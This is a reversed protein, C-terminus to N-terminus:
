ARRTLQRPGDVDLEQMGVRLRRRARPGAVGSVVKAAEVAEHELRALPRDDGGPDRDGDVDAQAPEHQRTGAERDLVAHRAQVRRPQDVRRIATLHAHDQDVVARLGELGVRTVPDRLQQDDRGHVVVGHDDVLQRRAAVIAARAAEAGGAAALYLKRLGLVDGRGLTRAFTCGACLQHYMTLYRSASVHGLGISHGTEHVAASEVDYHGSRRQTSWRWGTGFRQDTEVIRGSSNTFTWACALTVTNGCLALRGRDVVSRGDPRTHISEGSRGLYRSAINDQDRYGCRNRTRDWAHHGRIVAQRFATSMAHPNIRYAYRRTRWRNFTRYAGNRCSDDARTLAPRVDLDAPVPAAPVVVDRTATSGGELWARAWGPEDPDGYLLFVRTRATEEQVPVFPALATPTRIRAMTTSRRPRGEADCRTVRYAGAFFETVTNEGRAVRDTQVGGIPACAALLAAVLM